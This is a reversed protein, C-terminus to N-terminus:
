YVLVFVLYILVAAVQLTLKQNNAEHRSEKRLECLQEFSQISTVDNTNKHTVSILKSCSDVSLLSLAPLAATVARHVHRQLPHLLDDTVLVAAVTSAVPMTQAANVPLAAYEHLPNTKYPTYTNSPDHTHTVTEPGPTVTNYNRESHALTRKNSDSDSSGSTSSASCISNLIHAIPHITEVPVSTSPLAARPQPSVSSKSNHVQQYERSSSDSPRLSECRPSCPDYEIVLLPINVEALEQKLRLIRAM